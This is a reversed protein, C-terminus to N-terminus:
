VLMRKIKGLPKYYLYKGIRYSWIKTNSFTFDRLSKRFEYLDKEIDGKYQSLEKDFRNLAANYVELDLSNNKEILRITNSDLDEKKILKQPSVNVSRYRIDFRFDLRRKLLLLSIDFKEVIGVFDFFNEVVWIAKSLDEENAIFRTQYNNEHTSKLWANFTLPNKRARAQHNFHSIYRDVPNRFFTVYVPKKIVKLFPIYPRLFHGTLSRINPNIKFFWNLDDIGVYTRGWLDVNGDNITFIEVHNLGFNNRLIYNFTTGATKIMHFFVIVPKDGKM